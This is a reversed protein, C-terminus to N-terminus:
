RLAELMARRETEVKEMDIDFYKALIQELSEHVPRYREHKDDWQCLVYQTQSDLFRGITNSKDSIAKLKECEPYESM